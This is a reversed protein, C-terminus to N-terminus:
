QAAPRPALRGAVEGWLVYVLYVGLLLLEPELAHRYKANPYALYYPIPYILLLALFLQWGRPRRTLVFLLGMWGAASLPWFEWPKWWEFTQYLLPTGDWFWLTRTVTLSLFEKPYKRVFDFAEKKHLDIFALEGMQSVQQFVRPNNNPHKGSFGVGNSAHYNGLYFEFWYNSRFLVPKGFVLDNRILWPSVLAGFLVCSLVLPRVWRKGAKHNAYMAYLFAFPMVSLPAPNTLAILAWIAAMRLWLGLTGKEGADITAILAVSVLLASATFDWIWSVPWRFFFPSVAWIWAAWLGVRAGVTRVGLAYIAIGTAAAMLCQLFLLVVASAVSYIGFVRFVGACLLPYVPAIWATPGTPGALFPSSYGHGEVISKAIQCIEVGFPLIAGPARVYTHKWLVFGFRLAFGVLFLSAYLWRNNIPKSTSLASSTKGSPVEASEKPQAPTGAITSTEM